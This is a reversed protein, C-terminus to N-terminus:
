KKMEDESPDKADLFGVARQAIPIAFVYIIICIIPFLLSLLFNEEPRIRTTLKVFERDRLYVVLNSSISGFVGIISHIRLLLVGLRTYSFKM